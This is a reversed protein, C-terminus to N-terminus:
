FGGGALFTGCALFPVTMAASNHTIQTDSKDGDGALLDTNFTDTTPYYIPYRSQHHELSLSDDFVQGPTLHTQFTDSPKYYIPYKYQYDALGITSQLGLGVIPYTVLEGCKEYYIPYHYQFHSMILKELGMSLLWYFRVGAAKIRGILGSPLTQACKSVHAIISAPEIYSWGDEIGIFGDGMYADLILNIVDIDGESLNVICQIKIMKRYEEDDWSGRSIGEDKGLRDLGVGEAQDVDWYKLVTDYLARNDESHQAIIKLLKYNNTDPERAFHRPMREVITDLRESM